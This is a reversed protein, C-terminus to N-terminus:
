TTAALALGLVRAHRGSRDHRRGVPARTAHYPIAGAIEYKDRIPEKFATRRETPGPRAARAQLGERKVTALVTAAQEGGM